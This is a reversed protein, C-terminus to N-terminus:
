CVIDIFSRAFCFCSLLVASCFRYLQTLNPTWISIWNQPGFSIVCVFKRFPVARWFSLLDHGPGELTEFILQMGERKRSQPLVKELPRAKQQWDNYFPMCGLSAHHRTIRAPQQLSM